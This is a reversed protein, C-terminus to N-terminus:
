MRRRVVGCAIREGSDGAPQSTLDDAGGHLVVARDLVSRTGPIVSIYDVVFEDHIEGRGDSTVNGFDGAHKRADERGGHAAGTPNFHGGASSADRASCDGTEHVHFGHRRNPEVGTVDVRVRVLRDDLQKFRVTGQASSGSRPDLIAVAEDDLGVSRCAPLIMLLGLPLALLSSRRM